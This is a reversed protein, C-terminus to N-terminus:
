KLAEFSFGKLSLQEIAKPLAYELNRQAKLSDHFVIISGERSYRIVNSLCKEPSVSQDFDYSLVDWMVLSYQSRLDSIQSKKIKGYPPRFLKSRVLASCKEINSFYESNRTKWGNLHNYTHNGTSHGEDSIRKYLDPNKEVNQGICFFTAKANHKKLIDLVWPTVEPIPGDDFTLYIKKEATPIRWILSSFLKRVAYPPRILKM